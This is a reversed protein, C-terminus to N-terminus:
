VTNKSKATERTVTLATPKAGTLRTDFTQQKGPKTTSQPEQTQGTDSTRETSLQQAIALGGPGLWVTIEAEVSRASTEPKGKQKTVPKRAITLGGPGFWVM